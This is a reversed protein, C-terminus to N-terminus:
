SVRFIHHNKELEGGLIGSYISRERRGLLRSWNPEEKYLPPNPEARTLSCSCPRKCEVAQWVGAAPITHLANWMLATTQWTLAKNSGMGSACMKLSPEQHLDGMWLTWMQIMVVIKEYFQKLQRHLSIVMGKLGEKYYKLRRGALPLNWSKQVWTTDSDIM